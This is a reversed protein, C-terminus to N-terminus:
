MSMQKQDGLSTNRATCHFVEMLSLQSTVKDPGQATYGLSYGPSWSGIHFVSAHSPNLQHQIKNVGFSSSGEARTSGRVSARSM